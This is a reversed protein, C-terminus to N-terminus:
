FWSLKCVKAAVTNKSLARIRPEATNPKLWIGAAIACILLRRSFVVFQMPSDAKPLPLRWFNTYWPAVNGSFRRVSLTGRFILRIRCNTQGVCDLISIQNIRWWHITRPSNAKAAVPLQGITVGPDPWLPTVAEVRGM